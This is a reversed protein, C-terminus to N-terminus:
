ERLKALWRVHKTCALEDYDRLGDVDVRGWRARRMCDSSPGVPEQSWHGCLPMVSSGDAKTAGPVVYGQRLREIGPPLYSLCHDEDFEDGCRGCVWNIDHWHCVGGCSACRRWPRKSTM